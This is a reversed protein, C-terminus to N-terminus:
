EHIVRRLPNFLRGEGEFGYRYWELFNLRLGHIVGGMLSLLINMSHGVIVILAGALFGFDAGLMNFTEAMIFGALALAYLRLYSLVDAFLQTVHLLELFASVIGKQFFSLLTALGMGGLVMWSGWLTATSKSVLGFINFWTTADVVSPFYLYGGVLFILWGLGAYHRSLTRMLACSIHIIGVLLSFELFVNDGFQMTAPYITKGDRTEVVDLLFQKGTTAHEVAPYRKQYFQYVSDREAMHYEAKKVAITSLLSFTRYPNEPGIELGLFSAMLVGWTICSGALILVLHVFRKKMGRFDPFKWKLYLGVILYLLGYAADSVIMAFFLSFFVLVWGSPDADNKSPVDYLLVLDEGVKQFGRNEMYTPVSDSSEIAIEQCEVDLQSVLAQLSEKRTKPVWAEIVFFPQKEGLPFLADHKAIQLHHDNLADILGAQLHSTFHAYLRVRREAQAIWTRLQFLEQRLQGVPRRVEMEIMDPYGRKEAHIALFYDLDYETGVYIVEKPLLRDKALDSKMCFFQLYRKGEKELFRIDEPSFEGFVAIRSIEVLLLREEERMRELEEEKELIRDAMTAPESFLASEQPFLDSPYRRLIKLAATLRQALPPLELAKKQSLGIFELFGARQALFFFRDVEEKTGFILYKQVDIIM